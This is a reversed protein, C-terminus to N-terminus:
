IKENSLIKDYTVALIKNYRNELMTKYFEKRVNSIYPTQEIIENILLVNKLEIQGMTAM